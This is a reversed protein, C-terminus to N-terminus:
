YSRQDFRPIRPTSISDAASNVRAASRPTVCTAEQGDAVDVDLALEDPDPVVLQAGCHVAHRPDRELRRRGSVAM